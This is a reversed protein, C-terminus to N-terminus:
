DDMGRVTEILCASDQLKRRLAHIQGDIARELVATDEGLEANSSLTAASLCCALFFAPRFSTQQTGCRDRPKIKLVSLLPSM